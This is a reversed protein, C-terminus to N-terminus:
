PATISASTAGTPRAVPRPGREQVLSFAFESLPSNPDHAPNNSVYSRAGRRRQEEVAERPQFIAAVVGSADRDLVPVADVDALERAPHLSEPPRHRLRRECAAAANAVRAPGCVPRGRALVCMRM